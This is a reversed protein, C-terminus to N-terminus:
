KRRQMKAHIVKIITFCYLKELCFDRCIISHLARSCPKLQAPAHPKWWCATQLPSNALFSDWLCTGSPWTDKYSTHKRRQDPRHHCFSASPQSIKRFGLIPLELSCFEGVWAVAHVLTQPNQAFQGAQERDSSKRKGEKDEKRREGRVHRRREVEGKQGEKRGEKEGGGDTKKEKTKRERWENM